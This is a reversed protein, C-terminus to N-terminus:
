ERALSIAADVIKDETPLVMKELYPAAPIVSDLAAVRGFKGSWGSDLLSAAVEAGWGANRTGEEVALVRGAQRASELVEGVAFPSVQSVICIECSIEEEMMLRTAAAAALTAMYGYCIIVVQPNRFGDLSLRVAPYPSHSTRAAFLGCRGDTAPQQFTSYLLKHELFVVPGPDSLIANELLSGHDHWQSPAVVRLGPVGLVIKELCQSHTAGYARGGGMPARVVLNVKATGGSLFYHKSVENILQDAALAIFDGFMMEVVPKLGTLAMGSALGVIGAESIPSSWVRSPYASSLGKTVKFAGGYPDLIDEGIMHVSDDAEMVRHLAKNLSALATVSDAVAVADRWEPDMPPISPIIKSVRLPKATPASEFLAGIEAEVEREIDAVEQMPLLRKLAEAPDRKQLAAIESSDRTDDGKSHPGLRDCRVAVLVPRSEDRAGRIAGGLARALDQPDTADASMSRMGFAEARDPISGAVARERPTTQAIGNDEVVLVLPANWLSAMNLTEYLIGEGQTGDGIFALSVGKKGRTRISLAVGLAAPLMGGLLGHSIFRKGHLHQSGGRGGCIGDAQGLMEALLARPDGGTAIFHGHCRHTSFVMDEDRLFRAAMVGVIEQGIATHTTGSLKGSAQLKLLAQEFARIRLVEAYVHLFDVPEKDEPSVIDSELLHM